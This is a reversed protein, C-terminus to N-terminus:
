PQNNLAFLLAKRKCDDLILEMEHSHLGPGYHNPKVELEKFGFRSFFDPNYQTTDLRIIQAKPNLAIQKLRFNLLSTGYGQHHFSHHILGWVLRVTDPKSFYYGGAGLFLDDKLVVWYDEQAAKQDLYNAYLDRESPDFFKPCNSDFAELCAERFIPSYSKFEIM